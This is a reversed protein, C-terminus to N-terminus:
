KEEEEGEEEGRLRVSTIGKWQSIPNWIEVL